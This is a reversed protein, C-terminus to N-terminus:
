SLLSPRDVRSKRSACLEHPYHRVHRHRRPGDREILAPARVMRQRLLHTRAEDTMEAPAGLAAAHEDLFCRLARDIPKRESM